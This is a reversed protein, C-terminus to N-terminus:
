NGMVQIDTANLGNNLIKKKIDALDIKVGAKKTQFEQFGKMVKATAKQQIVNVTQPKVKFFFFCACCCQSKELFITFFFFVEVPTFFFCLFQFSNSQRDERM